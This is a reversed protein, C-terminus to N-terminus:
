EGGGSNKVADGAERDGKLFDRIVGQIFDSVSLSEREARKELLRYDQPELRVMVQMWIGNM